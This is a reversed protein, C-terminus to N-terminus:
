RATYFGAPDTTAARVEGTAVNKISIQANPIVAGSADSVTGTITAGSVQAYVPVPILLVVTLALLVSFIVAIKTSKRERVMYEEWHTPESHKVISGTNDIKRHPSVGSALSQRPM